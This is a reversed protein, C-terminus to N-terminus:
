KVLKKSSTAPLHANLDPLCQVETIDTDDKRNFRKTFKWDGAWNKPDTMTYDVEFVGDKIMRYREIMHADESIPVSAGGQDMWHHHGPFYVTDVVLENGEWRGISEGGFTRVVEDAPTHKRGDLYIIRIENEFGAIMYIVTPLQVMAIPWVRTMILPMGAPWCQGIDDRYAKGEKQAKQSAEFHKQTEPTMKNAPPPPGFRWSNQSGAMDIFWTGTLDFPAKPRPKALNSPALPNLQVDGPATPAQAALPVAMAFAVAAAVVARGRM